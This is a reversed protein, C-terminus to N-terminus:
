NKKLLFALKALMFLFLYSSVYPERAMVFLLIACSHAALSAYRIGIAGKGESRFALFAEAAGFLSISALTASYALKAWAPDGSAALGVARIFHGERKGFFPLFIASCAMLDFVAFGLGINRRRSSEKDKSAVDLLEESSLLQDIPVGFVRSINKLAEINPFGRGSEWKSVATRSINLKGSLQEQTLKNRKRLEQLKERFEM